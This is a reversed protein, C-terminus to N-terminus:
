RIRQLRISPRPRCEIGLIACYQILQGADGEALKHSLRKAEVAIRQSGKISLTYDIFDKTDKVYVERQMEDLATYGLARLTPDIFHARTDAESV